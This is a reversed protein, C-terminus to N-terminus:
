MMLSVHFCTFHPLVHKDDKLYFILLYGSTHYTSAPTNYTLCWPNMFLYNNLTTLKFIELYTNNILSIKKIFSFMKRKRKILGKLMLIVKFKEEKVLITM